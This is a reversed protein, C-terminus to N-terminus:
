DGAALSTYYVWHGGGAPQRVGGATLSHSASKGHWIARNRAIRHRVVLSGFRFASSAAFLADGPDFFRDRRRDGLQSPDLAGSDNCVMGLLYGCRLFTWGLAAPLASRAPCSAVSACSFTYSCPCGLRRSNIANRYLHLM